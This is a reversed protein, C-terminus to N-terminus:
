GRYLLSAVDVKRSFIGKETFLDFFQQFYAIDSPKFDASM